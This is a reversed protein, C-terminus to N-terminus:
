SNNQAHVSVMPTPAVFVHEIGGDSEEDGPYRWEGTVRGATQSSLGCGSWASMVLAARTRTSALSGREGQVLVCSLWARLHSKPSTCTEAAQVDCRLAILRQGGRRDRGSPRTRCPSLVRRCSRLASSGVPRTSVFSWGCPEISAPWLRLIAALGQPSTGDSSTPAVRRHRAARRAVPEGRGPTGGGRLYASTPHSARLPSDPPLTRALWLYNAARRVPRRSPRRIRRGPRANRYSIGPQSTLQILSQAECTSRIQLASRQFM